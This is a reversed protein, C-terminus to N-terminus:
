KDRAVIYVIYLINAFDGGESYADSGSSTLTAWQRAMGRWDM